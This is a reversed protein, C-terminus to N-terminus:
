TEKSTRNKLFNYKISCKHLAVKKRSPFNYVDRKSHRVKQSMGSSLKSTIRM